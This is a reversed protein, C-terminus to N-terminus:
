WEGYIDEMQKKLTRRLRQVKRRQKREEKKSIKNCQTMNAKKTVEKPTKAM